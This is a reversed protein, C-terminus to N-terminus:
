AKTKGTVVNLRPRVAKEADPEDGFLFKQALKTVVSAIRAEKESSSMGEEFYIIDDYGGQKASKLSFVVTDGEIGELKHDLSYVRLKNLENVRMGYEIIKHTAYLADNDSWKKTSKGLILDLTRQLWADDTSASAIICNLFAHMDTELTYERLPECTEVARSRLKATTDTSKLDFVKKLACAQKECMAPYANKIERLAGKLRNGFNRISDNKCGCAAPLKDFLLDQPSKPYKFADRVKQATPSITATQKTYEPLTHMFKALAKFLALVNQTKEGEFLGEEYERILEQTVGAIKFQQFAFTDPRRLFREMHDVTFYPVYIRNEYVAIEDKRHLYVMLYFVPLMANKVGYPPATLTATLASFDRAQEDTSDFFKEVERWTAHFNCPNSRSPKVIQLKGDKEKHVGSAKFIALYMSKEAPYGAIGFNETDSSQLLASLLYRRGTNAQVSPHDRNILENKIIPTKPYVRELVDSLLTQIDRKSKLPQKEGDCYWLHQRPQEILMAIEKREAQQASALHLRFERQIVPDQNVAPADGAKQVAVRARCFEKISDSNACHVVIDRPSFHRAVKARFHAKSSERGGDSLCFIVRPKDSATEEREYQSANIFKPVFFFMSHKAISYRKAVLPLIPATANLEAAIDMTQTYAHQDAVAQDLDFDSGQWVRYESNFKRFTIASKEQLNKLAASFGRTGDFCLKIAPKSAKIGGASGAINFLGITKLLRVDAPGADNMRDMASLVETWARQTQLDNSAPQTNIFYDYLADPPLFSGIEVRPMQGILGTTDTSGLYGFLSRENQAVKQSLRPLLLLTMPHLPYCQCFLNIATKAALANPLIGNKEMVAVMSRIKEKLQAAKSKPLDNRFIQAIVRLSQETTEVFPLIQYRGQIKTWENRIAASLARGYQEFSQHLLVFLLINSKGTTHAQEALMQLLFIDDSEHREAYELFKGLEDIIILLGKGRANEIRTQIKRLLKAVSTLNSASAKLLRNIERIENQPDIDLEDRFYPTIGAALARLFAKALPEPSGSLLVPCYGRSGRLHTGIATAYRTNAAQLKALAKKGNGNRPNALLHSLYLAFSSKGSGYSGILAWAKDMDKKEACVDAVNGIGQLARSTLIYADLLAHAPKDRELNVSRSLAANITVFKDASAM